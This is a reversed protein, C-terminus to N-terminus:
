TLRAAGLAFPLVARDQRHGETAQIRHARGPRTEWKDGIRLHGTVSRLSTRPGATRPGPSRGAGVPGAPVASRRSGRSRVTMVTRSTDAKTTIRLSVIM